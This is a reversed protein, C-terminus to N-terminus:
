FFFFLFHFAVLVCSLFSSIFCVIKKNTLKMFVFTKSLFYSFIIKSFLWVLWGKGIYSLIMIWKPVIFYHTYITFFPFIMFFLYLFLGKKYRKQLFYAGVLTMLLYLLNFIICFAVQPTSKIEYLEHYGGNKLVLFFSVIIDMLFLIFFIITIFFKQKNSFRDAIKKIFPVIFMLYLTGLIGWFIAVTLSVYRYSFPMFGDYSWLIAGTIWEFLNGVIWEIASVGMGIIFFYCIFNKLSFTPIKLFFLGIIVMFFYIPIFPGILFGRDYLYGTIAFDLLTEFIFAVFGVLLAEFFIAFLNEKRM